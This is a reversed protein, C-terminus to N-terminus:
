TYREIKNNNLKHDSTATAITKRAFKADCFYTRYLPDQQPRSEEWQPLNDIM